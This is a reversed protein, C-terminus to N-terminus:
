LNRSVQKAVEDPILGRARIVVPEDASITPTWRCCAGMPRSSWCPHTAVTQTSQQSWAGAGPHQHDTSSNELRFKVARPNFVTDAMTQQHHCSSLPLALQPGSSQRFNAQLDAAPQEDPAVHPGLSIAPAMGLCEIEHPLYQDNAYQINKNNKTNTEQPPTVRERPIWELQTPPAPLPPRWAAAQSHRHLPQQHQDHDYNHVPFVMAQDCHDGNNNSIWPSSGGERPSWQDVDLAIDDPLEEMDLQQPPLPTGDCNFEHLIGEHSPGPDRASTSGRLKNELAECILDLLRFKLSGSRGDDALLLPNQWLHSELQALYELQDISETRDSKTMTNGSMLFEIYNRLQNKLQESAEDQPNNNIIPSGGPELQRRRWCLEEELLREIKPWLWRVGTQAYGHYATQHRPRPHTPNFPNPPRTNIERNTTRNEMQNSPQNVSKLQHGILAM